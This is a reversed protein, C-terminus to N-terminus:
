REPLPHNKMAEAHGNAIFASVVDAHAQILKAVYPDSSTEIVRVGAATPEVTMQIKATNRFIERFLPDRQHIPRAQEVRAAMSAVHTKLTAAVAPDTSETLSEVGDSRVTVTRTITQRNNFLEHIWAMDSMQNGMPGAAQSGMAGRGHMEGMRQMCCGAPAAPAPAATGHDHTQSSQDQPAPAGHDHEAPQQAGATAVAGAVLAAAVLGSGRSAIRQFSPFM